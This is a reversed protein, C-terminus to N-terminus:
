FEARSEGDTGSLLATAAPVPEAAVPDIVNRAAAGGRGRWAPLGDRM